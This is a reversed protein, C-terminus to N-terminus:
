AFNTTPTGNAFATPVAWMIVVNYDATTVSAGPTLTIANVTGTIAVGTAGSLPMPAGAADFVQVSVPQYNFNHTWTKATSAVLNVKLFNVGTTNNKSALPGLPPTAM